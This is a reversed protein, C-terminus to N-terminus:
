YIFFIMLISVKSLISSEELEEEESSSEYDGSMHKMVAEHMRAQAEEFRKVGPGEASVPARTVPATNINGRQNGGGRKKNKSQNVPPFARNWPNNGSGGNDPRQMTGQPDSRLPFGQYDLFCILSFSFSPYIFLFLFLLNIVNKVFTFCV